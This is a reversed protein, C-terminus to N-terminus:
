TINEYEWTYTRNTFYSSVFEYTKTMKEGTISWVQEYSMGKTVQNYESLTVGDNIPTFFYGNAKKIFKTWTNSTYTKVKPASVFGTATKIQASWKGAVKEYDVYKFTGKYWWTNYKTVITGLPMNVNIIQGRFNHTTIKYNVASNNAKYAQTVYATKTVTTKVLDYDVFSMVAYSFNKYTSNTATTVPYLSTANITQGIANQVKYYDGILGTKYFTLGAPKTITAAEGKNVGMGALLGIALAGGTLVKFIKIM